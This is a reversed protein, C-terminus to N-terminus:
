EEGEGRDVCDVCDVNRMNCIYQTNQAYQWQYEDLRLRMPAKRIYIVFRFCLRFCITLSSRIRNIPYISSKIYKFHDLYNKPQQDFYPQQQGNPHSCVAAM